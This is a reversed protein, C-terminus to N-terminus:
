FCHTIGEDSRSMDESTETPNTELHRPSYPAYEDTPHVVKTPKVDADSFWLFVVTPVSPQFSTCLHLKTYMMGVLYCYQHLKSSLSALEYVLGGLRWAKM